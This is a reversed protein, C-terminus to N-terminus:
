SEGGNLENNIVQKFADLPQAGIFPLGNIFFTPTSRVGLSIAFDIDSQVLDKYENKELCARFSEVDLGLDEAIQVYLETGLKAQNEYIGDHYPWFAGQEYACMSAEAAQFANSHIASLPFHRYVFRIKGPYADLLPQLTQDHFRACYPCQFDSFEVIVIPADDPGISPFGDVPIDYRKQAQPQVQASPVNNTKLLLAGGLFGVFASGASVIVCLILIEPLGMKRMEFVDL